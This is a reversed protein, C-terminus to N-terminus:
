NSRSDVAHDFQTSVNGSISVTDRIGGMETHLGQGEFSMEFDLSSDDLTKITAKGLLLQITSLNDAKGLIGRFSLSGHNEKEYKSADLTIDLPKEGYADDGSILLMMSRERDLSNLRVMIKNDNAWTIESRRKDFETEGYEEGDIVLSIEGSMLDEDFEESKDQVTKVEEDNGVAEKTTSTENSADGGCSSVLMTTVLAISLIISVKKM